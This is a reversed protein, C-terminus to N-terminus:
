GKRRAYTSPIGLAQRYKAVARRSVSIGEERLLTQFQQDSLPAEPDEERILAQLRHQVGTSSVEESRASPRRTRRALFYRLPYVGWRCRLYKNQVARSVTSVHLNVQRGIDELSLPRLLPDGTLFFRSQTEVIVNTIACLTQGRLAIAQELRSLASLQRRLYLRAEEEETRSLLDLYLPDKQLRPVVQRDLSIEWRGEGRSVLIEPVIYGGPDGTDYGSAPCPSLERLRCVAAQVQALSVRQSKAIKPLRGAAVDELHDRAIRCELPSGGRRRLQLLLSESLCSAGVGPPDFGQLLAVAERVQPLPAGLLQALEEESERLYGSADLSDILQRLLWQMEAPLTLPIQLRLATRLTRDQAPACIDQPAEGRGAKEIWSFCDSELSILPNDLAQAEILEALEAVPMQLIQLTQRMQPTLHMQAKLYLGSDLM